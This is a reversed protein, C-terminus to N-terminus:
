EGQSESEYVGLTRGLNYHAYEYDMWQDLHASFGCHPCGQIDPDFRVADNKSVGNRATCSKCPCELPGHCKPCQSWSM